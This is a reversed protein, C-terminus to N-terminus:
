WRYKDWLQPNAWHDANLWDPTQKYDGIDFQYLHLLTGARRDEGIRSLGFAALEAAEWAGAAPAQPPGAPIVVYLRAAYLDRLAAILRAGAAKDLSELTGAVVAADFRQAGELGHPVADPTLRTIEVGAAARYADLGPLAAGAPGIALLRRPNQDALLAAIQTDFPAPM